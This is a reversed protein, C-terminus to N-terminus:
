EDKHHLLVLSGTKMGIKPQFEIADQFTPGHGFAWRQLWLLFALYLPPVLFPGWARLWAPLPRHRGTAAGPNVDRQHRLM